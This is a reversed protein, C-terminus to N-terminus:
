KIGIKHKRPQGECTTDFTGKCKNTPCVNHKFCGGCAECIYCTIRDM